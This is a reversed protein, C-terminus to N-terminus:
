VTSSVTGFGYGPLNIVCIGLSLLYLLQLALTKEESTREIENQKGKRKKISCTM